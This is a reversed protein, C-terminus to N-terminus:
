LTYIDTSVDIDFIELFKCIIHVDLSWVQLSVAYVKIYHHDDLSRLFEVFVPM